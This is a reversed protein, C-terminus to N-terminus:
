PSPSASASPTPAPSAPVPSATASPAPSATATPGSTGSAQLAALAATTGPLAFVRGRVTLTVDSEAVTVQLGTVLFARQAGQLSKLFTVAQFYRGHVAITLPVGVIQSGGTASAVASAAASAAGSAAGAAETSTGLHGKADLFQPKGPTVTDLRVGASAALEDLSRIFTPVDAAVPLQGLVAALEAQKEPLTAFQAKLRAVQLELADNRSQTAEASATLDAAEGRRPGVLGVYTVAVLGLCVAATGGAWRSTPSSFV